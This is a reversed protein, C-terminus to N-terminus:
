NRVFVRVIRNHKARGPTLKHVTGYMLHEEGVAYQISSKCLQQSVRRIAPEWTEFITRM